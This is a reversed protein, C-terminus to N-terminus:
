NKKRSFFLATGLCGWLIVLVMLLRQTTSLSARAKASPVAVSSKGEGNEGSNGIPIYAMAGHGALRTQVSWVGEQSSDLFFRFKGEEDTIGELQAVEPKDPAFILVRAGAMPTGSDYLSTIEIGECRQYQINAGHGQANELFLPSNILFLAM